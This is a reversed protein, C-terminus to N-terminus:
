KVRAPKLLGPCRCDQSLIKMNGVIGGILNRMYLTPKLNSWSLKM